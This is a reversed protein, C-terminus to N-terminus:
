VDIVCLDERERQRRKQKVRRGTREGAIAADNASDAGADDVEAAGDAATADDDVVM